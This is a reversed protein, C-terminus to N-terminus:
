PEFEVEVTVALEGVGLGIRASHGEALRELWREVKTDFTL